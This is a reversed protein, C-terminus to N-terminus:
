GLVATKVFDVLKEPNTLIAKDATHHMRPMIFREPSYILKATDKKNRERDDDTELYAFEKENNL